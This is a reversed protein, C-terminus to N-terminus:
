SQGTQCIENGITNYSPGSIVLTIDVATSGLKRLMDICNGRPWNLSHHSSGSGRIVLGGAGMPFSMLSLRVSICSGWEVNLGAGTFCENWFGVDMGGIVAYCCSGGISVGGSHNRWETRGGSSVSRIACRVNRSNLAFLVSTPTHIAIVCWFCVAM